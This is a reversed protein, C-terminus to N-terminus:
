VQQMHPFVHIYTSEIVTGLTSSLVKVLNQPCLVLEQLHKPENKDEFNQYFISGGENAMSEQQKFKPIQMGCTKPDIAMRVWFYAQKRNTYVYIYPVRSRGEVGIREHRGYRPGSDQLNQDGFLIKRAWPKSIEPLNM